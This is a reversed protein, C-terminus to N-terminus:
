EGNGRRCLFRMGVSAHRRSTNPFRLFVSTHQCCRVSKLRTYTSLHDSTFVSWKALLSPLFCLASHLLSSNAQLWFNLDFTWFDPCKCFWYLSSGQGAPCPMRRWDEGCAERPVTLAAGTALVLACPGFLPRREGVQQKVHLWLRQWELPTSLHM